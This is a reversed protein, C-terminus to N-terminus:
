QKIKKPRVVLAIMGLLIGLYYTLLRWLLMALVLKSSNTIFSSFITSFSYEAGGSGGPIPFLSIVMVILIHFTTVLLLSVHQEGLSLLIFYPVIYYFMLQILTIIGIKMLLRGDRKLRLSEQYFSNIKEDLIEEWRDIKSSNRFLRLLKFLLKVSKRTFSYWYMVLLLGIIVAFHILFGFLFLLSLAHMKSALFHFGIFLAVIFNVVIMSQYVVFKMLLVSTAQGADVGAQVLAFLQAPQGGSSFPTIGNFLQEVLPIRLASQLPFDMTERRLLVKVVIAELFYSILMSFVAAVLWGWKLTALDRILSNFSIDRLSFATIALGFLLMLILVIKNRSTM